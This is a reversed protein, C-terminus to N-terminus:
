SKSVWFEDAIDLGVEMRGHVEGLTVRSPFNSHGPEFLVTWHPSPLSRRVFTWDCLFGRGIEHTKCRLCTVSMSPGQFAAGVDICGTLAELCLQAPCHSAFTSPCANTIESLYTCVKRVSM